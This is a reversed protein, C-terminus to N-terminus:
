SKDQRAKNIEASKLGLEILDWFKPVDLTRPIRVGPKGKDLLKAITRGSQNSKEEVRATSALSEEGERVVHVEYREGDNDDFLDYHLAAAVAIPDHLPPSPMQYEVGYTQGFFTVIEYFLLRILSNAGKIRQLIEPTALVQHTIDLPILTTKAALVPNSFVAAASEPDCYINFEAFPTSNGFSRRAQELLLVVKEDSLNTDQIIGLEKFHKAVEEITMKSDDPLGAPFDRELNTNFHLREKMRGLPAHTFFGGIAGGMISLGAISDVLEPYTAFLLAVNTLTGTSVLWAKGPHASLALYMAAITGLKFVAPSAVPLPLV